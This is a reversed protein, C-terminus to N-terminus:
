EFNNCGDHFYRLRQKRDSFSFFIKTLIFRKKMKKQRGRKRRRHRQKRRRKLLKEVEERDSETISETDAYANQM